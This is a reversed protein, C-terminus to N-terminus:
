APHGDARTPRCRRARSGLRAWVRKGRPSPEVGWSEALAAVLQIGRHGETSWPAEEVLHPVGPHGDHVSVELQGDALLHVELHAPGHQHVVANAALEGVVVALM